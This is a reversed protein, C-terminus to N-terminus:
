ASPGADADAAVTSASRTEAAIAQLRAGELFRVVAAVMHASRVSPLVDFAHQTFPLEAYLVPARSVKRLEHAFERADAVPILTDNRGHVVFFPPADPRLRYLPSAARFVEPHEAYTTKFIRKEFLRLEGRDRLNKGGQHCTMDYQGYIPVCADVHCDADEFGPQFDPDGSSLALLAALHGGASGGGVAVFSPDGGYRHINERVWFVAKKCDVIHAPWTNKPSLRYNITVGVWGRRALEYLLPFGQERKDGIAWAGGHVYVFVPGGLPPSRRSVIVDLLHARRGDGWYDINRHTHAVRSPRPLPYALRPFRWMTDHGNRPLDVGEVAPLPVEAEAQSLVRQARDSIVAHAALGAWSAVAVALGLWGPWAGFAGLYAFVVTAAAQWVIHWVPMEATYWGAFFSQVSLLGHRVPRFANLVFLAGLVSVGLYAWSWGM